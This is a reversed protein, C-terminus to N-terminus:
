EFEVDGQGSSMILQDMHYRYLIAMIPQRRKLENYASEYLWLFNVLGHKKIHNLLEIINSTEVDVFM